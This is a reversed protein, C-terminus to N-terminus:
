AMRNAIIAGKLEFTAGNAKKSPTGVDRRAYAAVAIKLYSTQEISKTM